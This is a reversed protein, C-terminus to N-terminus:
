RWGEMEFQLARRARLIRTRVTNLPLGTAESIEQYSMADYERMMLPGRLDEPLKAIADHLHQRLAALEVTRETSEGRPSIEPLTETAIERNRSVANLALNTAIRYLWSRVQSEGRFEPAARYARVFTEQALDEALVPNRVVRMAAGFVIDQHRRVIEGFADLDDAALALLEEDTQNSITNRIPGM